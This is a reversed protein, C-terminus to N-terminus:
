PHSSHDPAHRACPMWQQGMPHAGTCQFHDKAAKEAEARTPYTAPVPPNSPKTQAATAVVLGSGLVTGVSGFVILALAPAMPRRGCCFNSLWRGKITMTLLSYVPLPSQVDDGFRWV